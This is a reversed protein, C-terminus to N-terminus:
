KVESFTHGEKEIVDKLSFQYFKVRTGDDFSIFFPQCFPGQDQRGTIVAKHENAWTDLEDGIVVGLHELGTVYQQGEKPPMLEILSVHFGPALELPLKLLLKAILRGNHVNEIFSSSHGMLQGRIRNYDELTATKFGLHSLERGKIEIGLQALRQEIKRFFSEYDGLIDKMHQDTPIEKPKSM